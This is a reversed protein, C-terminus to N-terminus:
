RELIKPTEKLLAEEYEELMKVEEEVDVTLCPFGM